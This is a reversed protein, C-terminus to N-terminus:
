EPKRFQYATSYFARGYSPSGDVDLGMGLATEEDLVQRQEEIYAEDSTAYHFQAVAEKHKAVIGRPVYAPLTRGCALLMNFKGCTCPQELWEPGGYSFQCAATHPQRELQNLLHDLTPWEPVQVQPKKELGCTTCNPQSHADCYWRQLGQNFHWLARQQENHQAIPSLKAKPKLKKM